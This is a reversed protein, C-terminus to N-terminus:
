LWRRSSCEGSGLDVSLVGGVVGLVENAHSYQWCVDSIVFSMCCRTRPAGHLEALRSYPCRVPAKEHLGTNPREM